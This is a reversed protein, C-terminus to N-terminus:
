EECDPWYWPITLYGVGKKKKAGHRWTRTTLPTTTAHGRNM